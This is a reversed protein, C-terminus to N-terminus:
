LVEPIHGLKEVLDAIASYRSHGHGRVADDTELHAVFDRTGPARGTVVRCDNEPFYSTRVQELPAPALIREFEAILQNTTQM